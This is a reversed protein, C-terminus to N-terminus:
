QNTASWLQYCVKFRNIAKRSDISILYGVSGVQLELNHFSRSLSIPPPPPPRIWVGMNCWNQWECNVYNVPECFILIDNEPEHSFFCENNVSFVGGWIISGHKKERDHYNWKFIFFEWFNWQIEQHVVSVM